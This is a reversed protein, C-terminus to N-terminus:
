RRQVVDDNGRIFLSSFFLKRLFITENRNNRESSEKETERKETPPCRPCLSLSLSLSLFLAHRESERYSLRTDSSLPPFCRMAGFSIQAVM